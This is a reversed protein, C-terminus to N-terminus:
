SACMILRDWRIVIGQASELWQYLRDDLEITERWIVHCEPLSISPPPAPQTHGIVTFWLM